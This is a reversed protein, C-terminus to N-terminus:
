LIGVEFKLVIRRYACLLIDSDNVNWDAAYM